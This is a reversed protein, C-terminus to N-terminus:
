ADATAAFLDLQRPLDLRHVFEWLEEFARRQKDAGAVAVALYRQMSPYPASARESVLRLGGDGVELEGGSNQEALLRARMEDWAGTALTRLSRWVDTGKRSPDPGLVWGRGCPGRQDGRRRYIRRVEYLAAPRGELEAIADDVM